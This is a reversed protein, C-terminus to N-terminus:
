ESLADPASAKWVSRTVEALVRVTFVNVLPPKLTTSQGARAPAVFQPQRRGAQPQMGGLIVYPCPPVGSTPPRSRLVARGSARGYNYASWGDVTSPPDAMANVNYRRGNYSTLPEMFEDSTEPAYRNVETDV